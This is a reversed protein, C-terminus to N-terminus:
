VLTLPSSTRPSSTYKVQKRKVARSCQQYGLKQYVGTIPLIMRLHGQAYCGPISQSVQVHSFDPTRLTFFSIIQLLQTRTRQPIVDDCRNQNDMVMVCRRIHFTMLLKPRLVAIHVDTYGRSVQQDDHHIRWFHTIMRTMCIYMHVCCMLRENKRM